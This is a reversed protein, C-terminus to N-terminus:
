QVSGKARAEEEEVMELMLNGIKKLNEGFPAITDTNAKTAKERLNTFSEINSTEEIKKIIPILESQVYNPLTGGARKCREAVETAKNRDLKIM